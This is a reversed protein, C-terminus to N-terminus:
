GVDFERTRGTEIVKATQFVTLTRFAARRKSGLVEFRLLRTQSKFIPKTFSSGFTGYRKERQPNGSGWALGKPALAPELLYEVDRWKPYDRPHEAPEQQKYNSDESYPIADKSEIARVRPASIPGVDDSM